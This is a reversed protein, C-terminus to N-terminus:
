WAPRGAACYSYRPPIVRLCLLFWLYGLAWGAIVDSPHHVNLVVRATGAVVIVVGTALVAATRRGASLLPWVVALFALMAATVGLAHGSPFSSSAASTLATGPRPRDALAKAIVTLPGMLGVSVGLFVALRPRRRLLVVAIGVLAVVRMANPSLVDTLVEWFRVWEPWQVGATHFRQLVWDDMAGVWAWDRVTAVWMVPYVIVTLVATARVSVTSVM